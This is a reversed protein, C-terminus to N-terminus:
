QREGQEGLDAISKYEKGLYARQVDKNNLLEAASEELIIQGTEMVYGRDAIRLAAKANQEVLLITKGMDRLRALVEFITKVIIPALGMSPEDLMILRPGAMLARGIALMQQEGGSLTGALQGSREELRPFLRYVDGLERRYEERPLSRRRSYSGLFLNEEVTLTGFVQRGEPVLVCGMGVIREAPLATISTKDFSIEGERPRVLGALTQLLTTKGAGNAGIITVIEGPNVHLSAGKIVLLNEYGAHLNRIRLM